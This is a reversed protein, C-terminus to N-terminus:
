AVRTADAIWTHLWDGVELGHAPRLPAANLLVQLASEGTDPYGAYIMTAWAASQTDDPPAWVHPPGAEAARRAARVEDALGALEFLSSLRDLQDAVSDENLSSTSEQLSWWVTRAILHRRQAPTAARVSEVLGLFGDVGLLDTGERYGPLRLVDRDTDDLVSSDGPSHDEEPWPEIRHVLLGDPPPPGDFRRGTFREMATVNAVSWGCTEYPAGDVPEAEVDVGAFYAELHPPIQEQYAVEECIFEDGDDFLALTRDFNVNRYLGAARRGKSLRRMVEPRVGEWQNTEIAIVAADVKILIVHPRPWLDIDEDDGWIATPDTPDGGYAVLVEEPTVDPIVAFCFAHEDYYRGLTRLVREALAVREADDM